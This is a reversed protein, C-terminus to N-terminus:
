GVCIGMGTELEVGGFKPDNTAPSPPSLEAIDGLISAPSLFRVDEPSPSSPLPLLVRVSLRTISLPASAIESLAIFLEFYPARLFSDRENRHLIIWDSYIVPPSSSFSPPSLANIRSLLSFGGSPILKTVPKKKKKSVLPFSLHLSFFSVNFHYYNYLVIEGADRVFNKVLRNMKADRKRERNTINVFKYNIMSIFDFSMRRNVLLNSIWYISEEMDVSM